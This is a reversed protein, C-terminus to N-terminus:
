GIVLLNNDKHCHLNDNVSVHQSLYVEIDETLLYKENRINQILEVLISRIQRNVNVVINYTVQPFM